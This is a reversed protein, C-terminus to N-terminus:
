PNEPTIHAQIPKKIFYTCIHYKSHLSNPPTSIECWLRFHICTSHEKTADVLEHNRYVMTTFFVQKDDL